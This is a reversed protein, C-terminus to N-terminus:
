IKRGPADTILEREKLWPDIKLAERLAAQGEASRGRMLLIVAKGALAGFHKPERKLVQEIADLSQEFQGTLFLVIARQNWGEAYDPARRILEDLDALAGVYNFQAMEKKTEDMLSQAKADPATLWFKWIRDEIRRAEPESRAAALAAFLAAREQAASASAAPPSTPTQPEAAMAAAGALVTLVPVALRWTARKAM